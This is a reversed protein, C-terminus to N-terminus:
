TALTRHLRNIVVFSNVLEASSTVFRALHGTDDAVRGADQELGFGAVPFQEDISFCPSSECIRFLVERILKYTLAKLGKADFIFRSLYLVTVEDDGASELRVSHPIAVKHGSLLLIGAGRRRPQHNLRETDLTSGNNRTSSAM